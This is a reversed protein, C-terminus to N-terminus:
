TLTIFSWRFLFFIFSFFFFSEATANNWLTFRLFTWLGAGTTLSFQFTRCLTHVQTYCCLCVTTEQLHTTFDVSCHSPHFSNGFIFISARWESHNKTCFPTQNYRGASGATFVLAALVNWFSTFLRLEARWPSTLPTQSWYTGSIIDGM